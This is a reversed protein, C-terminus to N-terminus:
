RVSLWGIVGGGVFLAGAIVAATTIVLGGAVEDLAEADLEVDQTVSAQLVKGFEHIEDLTFDYGLGNIQVLAESANLALLKKTREQDSTLFESLVDARAQTLM